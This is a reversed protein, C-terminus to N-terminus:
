IRADNSLASIFFYSSKAVLPMIQKLEQNFDTLNNLLQRRIFVRVSLM